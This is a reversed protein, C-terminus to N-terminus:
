TTPMAVGDGHRRREQQPLFEFHPDTAIPRFWVRSANVFRSSWTSPVHLLRMRLYVSRIPRANIFFFRSRAHFGCSTGLNQSFTPTQIAYTTCCHSRDTHTRTCQLVTTRLSTPNGIGDCSSRKLSARLM